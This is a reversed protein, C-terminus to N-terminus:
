KSITNFYIKELEQAQINIDYSSSKEKDIQLNRPMRKHKKIEKAWIKNNDDLSIFKINNSIQVEKPVRDSTVCFLGSIQAEILVIGLGEYLSPFLFVDMVQYYDQVNTIGNLFLINNIINKEKAINIIEDKQEGSGILILEADKETKYIEEFIELIRKQNKQETFRGINGIIFKGQLNLQKRLKDRIDENYKFREMQVANKLIIVKKNNTNRNGFLYRSAEESCAMYVNSFIRCLGNYVRAEKTIKAFSLHSHCIRVDVNCVCGVLLAMYSSSTMHVHLIDPNEIGIIKKLEIFNKMLSKRKPTVTYLKFGLKEFIKANKENIKEHSIIINEINNNKINSFYNYLVSEVGGFNVGSLVHVIKIKDKKYEKEIFTIGLIFWFIPMIKSAEFIDIFLAIINLNITIFFGYNSFVSKKSKYNEMLIYVELLLWAMIGLLGTECIIRIFNGDIGEGVISPGLGILPFKFTEKLLTTWKSIRFVYSLDSSSELAEPAYKIEGTEKYYNYDANDWAIKFTNLSSSLDLEKFRRLFSINTFNILAVFLIGILIIFAGIMLKRKNEKLYYLTSIIMVVLVALFSIRSQSILIEFVSILLLPIYIYNKNKFINVIYICSMMSFFASFEYPGSFTSYTRDNVPRGILYGIDGMINTYELISYIVHFAVIMNLLKLWDNKNKCTNYYDIGAFFLIFYEIKRIVYLLSLIIEVEGKIYNIVTSVINILIYGCFIIIVTKITNNIKIKKNIIRYLLIIVYAAIFIDDIRIGNRSGSISIINIKPAVLIVIILLTLFINLSKNSKINEM